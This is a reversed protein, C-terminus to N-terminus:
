NKGEKRRVDQETIGTDSCIITKWITEGELVTENSWVKLFCVGVNWLKSVYTLAAFEHKNSSQAREMKWLFISKYMAPTVNEM